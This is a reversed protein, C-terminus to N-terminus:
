GPEKLGGAARELAEKKKKRELAKAKYYEREKARRDSRYKLMRIDDDNPVFGSVDIQEGLISLLREADEKSIGSLDPIRNEILFSDTTLNFQDLNVRFFPVFRDMMEANGPKEAVNNEQSEEEM